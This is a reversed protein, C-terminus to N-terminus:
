DRDSKELREILDAANGVVPLDRAECMQMLQSKLMKEYPLTAPKSIEVEDDETGFKQDAGAKLTAVVAGVKVAIEPEGFEDCLKAWVQKAARQLLGSQVMAAYAEKRQAPSVKSLEELSTIAKM